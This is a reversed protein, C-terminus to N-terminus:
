TAAREPAVLPRGKVTPGTDRDLWEGVQKAYLFVRHALADVTFPILDYGDARVWLVACSDVEPMPVETVGDDDLMFEAFRYGALQLAVEPYPESRSTKLDVLVRGLGPLTMISDLRGGYRWKRNFVVRELLADTPDWEELFRLYSEVHGKLEPPVEITEGAALREALKHVETGRNAAADRDAYMVRGLVEALTGRSLRGGSGELKKPWKSTANFDRIASIVEDAIVQEGRLDLREVVFEAVTRGAWGVLAPKPIGNNLVTTVGPVKEGDLYYGHGNGHNVIRTPNAKKAPTM